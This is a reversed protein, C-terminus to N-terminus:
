TNSPPQHLTLNEGMGERGRPMRITLLYDNKEKILAAAVYPTRGVVDIYQGFLVEQGPDRPTKYVDALEPRKRVSEMNIWLTAMPDKPLLKKSDALSKVDVLSKSGDKGAHLDLALALVEKKNALLLTKGALAFHFGEGVSTTEVNQYTNKVPKDKSEQRALEQELLELALKAFKQAQAEDKAQIVLLAPAPNPGFKVGIAAGGGSLQDLMEPWKAGLEKEFYAVLKYFRRYQTSDFVEKAAPIAQLKKFTDLYYLTEVLTKPSSAEIVLDTEAPIYRLPSVVPEAAGVSATLLLLLALGGACRGFLRM